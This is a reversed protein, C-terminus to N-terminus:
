VFRFGELPVDMDITLVNGELLSYVKMRQGAAHTLQFDFSATSDTPNQTFTMSGEVASLLDYPTELKGEVRIFTDGEIHWSAEIKFQLICTCSM